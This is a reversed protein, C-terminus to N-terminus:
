HFVVFYTVSNSLVMWSRFNYVSIIFFDYLSVVRSISFRRFLDSTMSVLMVLLIICSTSSLIEPASSVMSFMLVVTLSFAFHL